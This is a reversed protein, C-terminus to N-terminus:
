RVPNSVLAVLEDAARGVDRNVIVVDFEKEAALEVRALELRARQAEDPETARGLLRRELEEWSPPTLFALQADPKAARVQRAGQLDIKLLVPTGTALRSEVAQRPTGYLNGAYEAHELLDGEAVMQAFRERDVFFYEVGDTEGPRPRRTTASVSVWVHPHRRRVEAIVTDKGVASPGSLVTLATV